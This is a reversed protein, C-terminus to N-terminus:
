FIISSQAIKFLEENENKYCDIEWCSREDKTISHFSDLSLVKKEIKRCNTIVSGVIEPIVIKENLNEFSLFDIKIENDLFEKQNENDVYLSEVEKFDVFDWLKRIIRNNQDSVLQHLGIHRKISHYENSNNRKRKKPSKKKGREKLRADLTTSAVENKIPKQYILNSPIYQRQLVFGAKSLWAFVKYENITCLMEDKNKRETCTLLTYADKFSLLSGEYTLEIDGIDLLFLVEEVFLFLFRELHQQGMKQIFKGQKIIKGVKLNPIWEVLGLKKLKETKLFNIHKNQKHHYSELYIKEENSEEKKNLKSGNKPLLNSKKAWVYDVLIKEAFKIDDTSVEM